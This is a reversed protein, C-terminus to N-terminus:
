QVKVVKQKYRVDAAVVAYVGPTLACIDNHGPKLAAAIRGCADVLAGPGPGLYFFRGRTVTTVAWPRTTAGAARESIGTSTDRIVYVVNDMFDNIYVRSNTRNWCLFEPYRGLSITKILTDARTDLIHVADQYVDSCYAKGL